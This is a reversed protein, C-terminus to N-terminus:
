YALIWQGDILLEMPRYAVKYKMKRCAEVWYGLYLYPLQRRKAEEIQWLIAYSGLSRRHHEPAFFTYTASLGRDLFDCVAIAVLEGEGNRFEFFACPQEGEVLFSNFQEDSPPYMDGDQHRENIYRQYLDYYEDTFAAPCQIVELDSNKNIIRRQGRNAIFKDVPLRMSVCANCNDCHPRYIHRGSRRFGLDSLHSYASSTIIAHPDVFLTKAKRGKIYSCDHEPTAFFNLERTVTTM